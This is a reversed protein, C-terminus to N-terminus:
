DLIPLDLDLSDFQAYRLASKKQLDQIDILTLNKLLMSLEEPHKFYVAASGGVERHIPTDSLILGVGYRMAEVIPMGFGEYESAYILVQSQKYEANLTAEDVYGLHRIQDPKDYESLASLIKESKWGTQGIITWTFDVVGTIERLAELIRIHNKRPEITGVTLFKIPGSADLNKSSDSSFSLYETSPHNVYIKDEPINFYERIDNKTTNSNAIIGDVKRLLNGFFYKHWIVSPRDHYEPYLIPTLDHVVVYRKVHTPLSFPGFHAMEIVIDAKLRKIEAPISSIYRLRYHFPWSKKIPIIINASGDIHYPKTTIHSYDHQAYQSVVRDIFQKAYYHIGAKQTTLCDAVIVVKM